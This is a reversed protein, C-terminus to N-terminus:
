GQIQISPPGGNNNFNNDLKASSSTFSFLIKYIGIQQQFKKSAIFEKDFMIHSLIEPPPKLLQLDVKENEYCISYKSDVSHCHKDMSEQYWM